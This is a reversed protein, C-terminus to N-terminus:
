YHTKPISNIKKVNLKLVIKKLQYKPKDDIVYDLITYSFVYSEEEVSINDGILIPNGNYELKNNKLIIKIHPQLWIGTHYPSQIEDIPLWFAGAVDFFVEHPERTNDFTLVTDVITTKFKKEYQELDMTNFAQKYIDNGPELLSHWNLQPVSVSFSESIVPDIDPWNIWAEDVGIQVAHVTKNKFVLHSFGLFSHIPINLSDNSYLIQMPYYWLTQDTINNELKDYSNKQIWGVIEKKSKVEALSDTPGFYKLTDGILLSYVPVKRDFDIQTPLSGNTFNSYKIPRRFVNCKKNTVVYDFRFSKWQNTNLDLSIISKDTTMWVINNSLKMALFYDDGMFNKNQPIGAIIGKKIDVILLGRDPYLGYEGSSSTAIILSDGKNVLLGKSCSSLLSDRIVGFRRKDYDFMGLGGVGTSGEGAYFDITFWKTNKITVSSGIEAQPWAYPGFFHRWKLMANDSPEQFEYQETQNGEKIEIMKKIVTDEVSARYAYYISQISEFSVTEWKETSFFFKQYNGMPSTILCGGPIDIIDSYDLLYKSAVSTFVHWNKNKDLQVVIYRKAWTGLFYLDYNNQVIKTFKPYKDSYEPESGSYVKQTM